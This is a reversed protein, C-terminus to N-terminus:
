KPLAEGKDLVAEFWAIWARSQLVQEDARAILQQTEELCSQLAVPDSHSIVERSADSRMWKLAQQSTIIADIAQAITATTNEVYVHDVPVARSARTTLAALSAHMSDFDATMNSASRSCLVQPTQAM